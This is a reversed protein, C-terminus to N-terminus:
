SDVHLILKCQLPTANLAQYTGIRHKHNYIHMLNTYVFRGHIHCSQLHVYACKLIHFGVMNSLVLDM